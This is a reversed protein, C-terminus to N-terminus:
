SWILFGKWDCTIFPSKQWDAPLNETISSVLQYHFLSSVGRTCVSRIKVCAFVTLSWSLLESVSKAQSGEEKVIEGSFRTSAPKLWLKTINDTNEVWQGCSHVPSTQKCSCSLNPINRNINKQGGHFRVCKFSKIFLIVPHGSDREMIFSCFLLLASSSEYELLLM